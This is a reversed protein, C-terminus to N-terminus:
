TTIYLLFVRRFWPPLIVFGLKIQGNGIQFKGSVTADFHRDEAFLDLTESDHHFDIYSDDESRVPYDFIFHSLSNETIESLLSPFILCRLVMTIILSYLPPITEGTPFIRCEGRGLKM